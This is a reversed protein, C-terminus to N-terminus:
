RTGAAEVSAPLSVPGGPAPRSVAPLHLSFRSGQGLESQVALRGGMAETIRKVIALGLGSGHIQDARVAPSRYFPRFIKKLEERSIGLGKDEVTIVVEPASGLDPELSARIGIWRAEGGYKIANVILNQLCQTLAKSDGWVEPLDPAVHEDVRVEAARLASSTSDLSARILEGVGLREFNYSPRRETASFLLIEEVLDALQQAQGLIAEGYLRAREKGTVIGDAVNQAASVIGTLPTRLEHSVGAVFDLQLEALREARRASIAITAIMAALAVLLGFDITLNRRYLAGVAAEVSGTRHQAVLTWGRSRTPYRIPVIRPPFADATGASPAAGDPRPGRDRIRVRREGESVIVPEPAGEGDRGPGSGYFAVPPGFINLEVDPAVKPGGFGPDSSYLVAGPDNGNVLAVRYPSKGNSVFDRQVLQPLIGGALVEPNLEVILFSLAGEGRVAQVLAPINQDMSWALPRRRVLRGYRDRLPPPVTAALHELHERLATFNPPWDVREFQSENPRLEFLQENGPTRAGEFVFVSAVLSPHAAAAQFRGFAAAYQRLYLEPSNPPSSQFIDCVSALEDELGRRIHMLSTEAQDHMEHELVDRLQRNDRYQLWGLLAVVIALGTGPLYWRVHNPIGFRRM